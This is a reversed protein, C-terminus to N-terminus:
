NLCRVTGTGKCFLRVTGTGNCFFRVTSRLLFQLTGYRVATRALLYVGPVALMECSQVRSTARFMVFVEQPIESSSFDIGCPVPSFLGNWFNSATVSSLDLLIFLPYPYQSM